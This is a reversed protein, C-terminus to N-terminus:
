NWSEFVSACPHIKCCTEREGERRTAASHEQRSPVLLPFISYTCSLSSFLSGPSLCSCVQRGEGRGGGGFFPENPKQVFVFSDQTSETPKGMKGPHRLVVSVCLVSPASNEQSSCINRQSGSASIVLAHLLSLSLCFKESLCKVM